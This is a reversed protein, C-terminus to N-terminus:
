WKRSSGTSFRVISNASRASGISARSLRLTTSVLEDLSGEDSSSSVRGRMSAFSDRSDRANASAFSDRSERVSARISPKFRPSKRSDRVPSDKSDRVRVPYRLRPSRVPAPLIKQTFEDESSDIKKLNKKYVTTPPSRPESFEIQTFGVSRCVTFTCSTPPMIVVSSCTEVVFMGLAPPRVFLSDNVMSLLSRRPKALKQWRDRDQVLADIKADCIRSFEEMSKELLTFEFQRVSLVEKVEEYDLASM